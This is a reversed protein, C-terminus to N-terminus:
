LVLIFLTHLGVKDKMKCRCPFVFPCCKTQMRSSLLTLSHPVDLADVFKGIQRDSLRQRRFQPNSDSSLVFSFYSRLPFKLHSNTLHYEPPCMDSNEHFRITIASIREGVFGRFMDKSYPKM